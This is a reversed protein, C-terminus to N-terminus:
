LQCEDPISWVYWDTANPTPEDGMTWWKAQYVQGDIAARQGARYATTAQWDDAACVVTFQHSVSATYGEFDTATVTLIHEGVDAATYQHIYPATTDVGILQNNLKFEIMAITGDPDLVNVNLAMVEHQKVISGDALNEITLLPPSDYHGVLKVGSFSSYAKVRVFYKGSTMTMQCQEDNGQAFPRCDYVEDTPEDGLRVYMDADGIGGFLEFRVNDANAPVEMTYVVDAGRPYALAQSPIHNVLKNEIPFCLPYYAGALCVVICDQPDVGVACWADRVALAESQGYLDRAAQITATKAGFFDTSQQMYTTLARYFIQESKDLGLKRVYVDSKGRPHVGGDVLLVFALNAIGSNGHVGGNDPGTYSLREPWWDKSYNDKTPNDLYRVADGDVDPTYIDKALLWSPQQTNDRSAQAAVGFIDSWAENLAGSAGKYTLGATYTTIGHTLEHVAVDFGYTFDILSKGDGDGYFLQTGDWLANNLDAGWHVSSVIAMGKDDISDRGFHDHYYDYFGAANDHARQASDDSCSEDIGQEYSCILRGPAKDQNENDLSHTKLHKATHMQPHRVLLRTNHYDYFVRDRGFDKGGDHWSVTVTWALRTEGTEALYVYALEPKDLVQGIKGAQALAQNAADPRIRKVAPTDNVALTGSVAYMNAANNQSETLDAHVILSTGYVKLGNITQNLHTHRKGLKDIWERRVNFDENGNAQYAPQASLFSKLHAITDVPTTVGLQGAVFLPQGNDALKIDVEAATAMSSTFLGTLLWHLTKM